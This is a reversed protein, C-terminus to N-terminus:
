NKTDILVFANKYCPLSYKAVEVHHWENKMLAANYKKIKHKIKVDMSKRASWFAEHISEGSELARYFNSMFYATAADDVSWLSLVMAGAGASKLGRQLGYIGGATIEGLASQCASAVFLQVGGLDMSGIERASLIGDYEELSSVNDAMKAQVGSLILVSKSLTEDQAAAKLDSSAPYLRGEYNGHTALHVVAFKGINERIYGETAEKGKVIIDDRRGRFKAISDVEAESNHLTRFIVRKDALYRYALTDNNGCRGDSSSTYFDVDGCVFAKGQELTAGDEVIERTASLRFARCDLQPPLLYEIALNHFIGDPSFYVKNIGELHAVFNSTWIMRALTDSSYLLNKYKSKDEKIAQEVTVKGDLKHQTLEQTGIIRVFVPTGKHKLVLAGMQSANYKEYQIFEIACEGPALHKQLQKWSIGLSDKASLNSSSSYQLLLNKSLLAVDYLFGASVGEIEDELRYCDSLFQYKRLWYQERESSTMHRFNHLLTDKQMDFYRKYCAYAEKWLHSNGSGAEAALSFIKGKTRLLESENGLEGVIELAADFEGLRALCLAKYASAEKWEEQMFLRDYLDANSSLNELARRYNGFKYHIQALETNLVCKQNLSMVGGDTNLIEMSKRYHELAKEYAGLSDDAVCFYYSGKLKHYNAFAYLFNHRNAGAATDAALLMGEWQALMKELGKRNNIRYARNCERNLSDM